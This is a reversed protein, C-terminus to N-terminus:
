EVWTMASPNDVSVSVIRQQLEPLALRVGAYVVLHYAIWGIAAGPIWLIAVLLFTSKDQGTFWEQGEAWSLFLFPGIGMILLVVIWGIMHWRSYRSVLEPASKNM